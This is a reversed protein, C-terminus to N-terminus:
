PILVAAGRVTRRKLACLVKNAESLPYATTDTRIPIEAALSLLAEGDRRTSATVSRVTREYYLDREYDLTPSSSGCPM